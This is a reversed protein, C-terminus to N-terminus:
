IGLSSADSCRRCRQRVPVVGSVDRHIEGPSKGESGAVAEVDEFDVEVSIAQSVTAVSLVLRLRNHIRVLRGRIGTLAGRKVEVMTGLTLYECRRCSTDSELMRRLSQVEIEPIAVPAHNDGLIRVVGSTELVRVRNRLSAEQRVFVYGGFAPVQIVKKRDTWQRTERLLPLYTEFGKVTLDRAIRQEYRYLTQVAYWEARLSSNEVSFETNGDEIAFVEGV